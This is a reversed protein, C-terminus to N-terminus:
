PSPVPTELAAALVPPGRDSWPQADAGALIMPAPALEWAHRTFARVWSRRRLAALLVACLRALQLRPELPKAWFWWGSGRTASEPGLQWALAASWCDEQRMREVDVWAAAGPGYARDMHREWLDM